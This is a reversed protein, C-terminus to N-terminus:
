QRLHLVLEEPGYTAAAPHSMSVPGVISSGPFDEALVELAVQMETRALLRGLCLRHGRGFTQHHASNPRELWFVDPDEFVDPDRNAAPINISIADGLAFEIDNIEFSKTVRRLATHLSPAFRMSEEVANPILAPNEVVLSWRSRDQMLLLVAWALQLRTTDHGAFLMNVLAGFMEGESISYGDSVSEEAAEILATVFDQRPSRRRDDVLETFYNHLGVLAAEIEASHAGIPNHSLLALTVTWDQFRDIDAIPIGILRCVMGIPYKDTFGGVFDLFEGDVNHSILERAANRMRDRLEHVRRGTFASQLVKRVADHRVWPMLPLMGEAAYRLIITPADQAAYYDAGIGDLHDRDTLLTAAAKWSLVEYGRVSRAIWHKGRVAQVAEYPSQQYTTDEFDLVPITLLEAAKSTM